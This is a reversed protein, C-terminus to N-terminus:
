QVVTLRKTRVTEGATLRLFYVGSTLGSVDLRAEQRGEQETRAVTRVRRGLVDYLRLTVPRTEPLAYQVTVQSRAPNPFTGRLTVVDVTREVSITKSHHVSGDTDVQALRYTLADAEYPLNDDTFRYSQAQSTTGSGEVSGVTAWADKRGKAGEGKRRQVRFEANNTESATQWTLRVADDRTTADLGAMEVPLEESDSALVFEGLTDSTDISAVLENADSDHDTTLGTFSGTDKTSRRYITVNNADDVGGLTSVDLRIETSGDFSLDGGAEVVYRYESVTSESIDGSAVLPDEDLKEATVDGSGSVGTFM